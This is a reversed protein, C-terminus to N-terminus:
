RWVSKNVGVSERGRPTGGGQAALRIAAVASLAGGQATARRASKVV